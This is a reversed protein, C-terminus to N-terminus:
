ALESASSSAITWLVKPKAHTYFGSSSYAVRVPAPRSSRVMEVAGGTEEESDPLLAGSSHEASGGM